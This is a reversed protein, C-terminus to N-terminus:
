VEGYPLRLLRNVAFRPRRLCYFFLPYRWNTARYLQPFADAQPRGQRAEPCLRVKASRSNLNMACLELLVKLGASPPRGVRCNEYICIIFSKRADCNYICIRFSKRACSRRLSAENAVSARSLCEKHFTQICYRFPKPADNRRFAMFPNRPIVTGSLPNRARPKLPVARRSRM